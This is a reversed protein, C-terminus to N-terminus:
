EESKNCTTTRNKRAHKLIKFILEFHVRYKSFTIDMTKLYKESCLLTPKGTFYFQHLRLKTELENKAKKLRILSKSLSQRTFFKNPRTIRFNTM